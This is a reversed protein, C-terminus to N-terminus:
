LLQMMQEETLVTIGLEQAKALKSGADEGAILYDTTKSVGSAITAGAAELLPEFDHRPKSLKGTLCVRKGSFDITTNSSQQPKAKTSHSLGRNFVQAVEEGFDLYNVVGSAEHPAWEDNIQQASLEVKDKLEQFWQGKLLEEWNESSADGDFLM